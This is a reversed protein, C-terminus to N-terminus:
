NVVGEARLRPIERGLGAKELVEDTQQGALVAPPAQTASRSFRVHPAQRPLEGWSPHVTDVMLHHQEGIPTDLLTVHCPQESTRVLGIGNAIGDQEWEAAARKAFIRGLAEALAADNDQRSARTAFRPDQALHDAGIVETLRLWDPDRLASVFVYGTSAPYIRHLAGTGWLGEDVMQPKPSGAWSVSFGSM